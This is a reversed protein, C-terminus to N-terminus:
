LDSMMFHADPNVDFDYQDSPGRPIPTGTNLVGVGNMFKSTSFCSEYM